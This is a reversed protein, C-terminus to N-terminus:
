RLNFRFPVIVRVAVAEKNIYGPVFVSKQLAEIVAMDFHEGASKLIRVALVNGKDDITVEALVSAQTGARQETVPYIPEIKHLFAPPQTLKSLPQINLGSAPTAAPSNIKQAPESPQEITAPPTTLAPAIEEQPVEAETKAPKKEPKQRRPITNIASTTGLLEVNITQISRKVASNGSLQSMALILVVVHLLLAIAVAPSWNILSRM